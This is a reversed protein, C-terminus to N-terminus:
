FILAITYHWRRSLALAVAAAFTATFVIQWKGLSTIFLMVDNLHPTRLAQVM